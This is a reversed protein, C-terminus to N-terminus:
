GRVCAAGRNRLPGPRSRSARALCTALLFFLLLLPRGAVVVRRAHEGRLQGRERLQAQQACARRRGGVRAARRGGV